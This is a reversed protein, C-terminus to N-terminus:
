KEIWHRGLYIFPTDMIAIIFKFGYQVGIMTIIADIPLIGYFAISIFLFSDFLQSVMTSINNRIWLHKKGTYSRIKHFLSVDINQSVFYAMLSALVVRPVFNFVADFASGDYFPANPVLVASQTVIVSIISLVFGFIVTNRAEEKSWCESIIDTMLYTIPYTLIGVTMVYGWFSGIKVAIVNALIMCTYFLAKLIELKKSKDM